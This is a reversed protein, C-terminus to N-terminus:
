MAAAHTSISNIKLSFDHGVFDNSGLAGATGRTFGLAGVHSDTFLVAYENDVRFFTSFAEPMEILRLAYRNARNVQGANDVVGIWTVYCRSSAPVLLFL